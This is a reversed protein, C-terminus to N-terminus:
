YYSWLFYALRVVWLIPEATVVTQYNFYGVNIIAYQILLNQVHAWDLTFTGACYWFFIPVLCEFYIGQEHNFRFRNIYTQNM